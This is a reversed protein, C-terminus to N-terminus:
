WAWLFQSSTFFAVKSYMLWHATLTVLAFMGALPQTSSGRVWGYILSLLLALLLGPLFVYTPLQVAAMAMFLLDGIGIYHFLNLQKGRSKIAIYLMIVAVQALTINLNVLITLYDQWPGFFLVIGWAIFLWLNITRTTFDEWGMRALLITQAIPYWM